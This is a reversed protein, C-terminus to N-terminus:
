VYREVAKFCVVIWRKNLNQFAPFRVQHQHDNDNLFSKTYMRFIFENIFKWPVIQLQYTINDILTPQKM